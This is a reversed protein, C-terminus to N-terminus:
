RRPSSSAWISASSVEGVKGAIEVNQGGAVGRAGEFQVLIEAVFQVDLFLRGSEEELRGGLGRLGAEQPDIVIVGAVGVMDEGEDGFEAGGEAEGAQPAEFPGVGTGPGADVGEAAAGKDEVEGGAFRKACDAAIFPQGADEGVRVGCPLGLAMRISPNTQPNGKPRTRFSPKSVLNGLM